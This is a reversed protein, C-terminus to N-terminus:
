VKEILRKVRDRVRIAKSEIDFYLKEGHELLEDAERRLDRLKDKGYAMLKEDTEQYADMVNNFDQVFKTMGDRVENNIKNNLMVLAFAVGICLVVFGLLLFEMGEM